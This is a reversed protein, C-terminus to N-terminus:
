KTGFWDKLQNQIMHKSCMPRVNDVEYVGGREEPTILAVHETPRDCHACTNFKNLIHERLAKREPLISFGLALAQRVKKETEKNNLM